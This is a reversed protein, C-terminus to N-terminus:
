FHESKWYSLSWSSDKSQWGSGMSLSLAPRSTGFNGARRIRWLHLLRTMAIGGQRSFCDVTTVRLLGTRLRGASLSTSTVFSRLTDNRSTRFRHQNGLRKVGPFSTRTSDNRVGIRFGGTQWESRLSSVLVPINISLKLNKKSVKKKILFYCLILVAFLNRFNYKM